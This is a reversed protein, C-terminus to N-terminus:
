EPTQGEQNNAVTRPTALYFLIMGLTGVLGFIGLYVWVMYPHYTDWLLRTADRLSGGAGGNVMAAVQQLAEDNTLNKAVEEPLGGQKVLYDRALRFKSSLADYMHGGLTNGLWWGIAFPINSYGMYLAKKDKPAILGVYASFTPSCMMEGIAFVFIMIACLLGIQTLGAAVFGVLSIIMGIIM